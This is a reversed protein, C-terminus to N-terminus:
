PLRGAAESEHVPSAPISSSPHAQPVVRSGATPPGWPVSSGGPTLGPWRTCGRLVLQADMDQSSLVLGPVCGDPSAHRRACSCAHTPTSSFVATCACSACSPPCRMALPDHGSSHWVPPAPHLHTCGQQPACPPHSGWGVVFLGSGAGPLLDRRRQCPLLLTILAAPSSGPVASASLGDGPERPVEPSTCGALLGLAPCLYHQCELLVRVPCCPQYGDVAAGGDQGQGRPIHAAPHSRAWGTSRASGSKMSRSVDSLQERMSLQARLGQGARDGAAVPVWHGPLM